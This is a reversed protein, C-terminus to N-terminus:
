SDQFKKPPPDCGRGPVRFRSIGKFFVYLSTRATDRSIKSIYPTSVPFRCSEFLDRSHHYKGGIKRGDKEIYQLVNCMSWYINKIYKKKVKFFSFFVYVM